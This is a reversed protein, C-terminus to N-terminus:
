STRCWATSPTGDFYGRERAARLEEGDAACRARLVVVRHVGATTHAGRRAGPPAAFDGTARAAPERQARTPASSATPSRAAPSSACRTASRSARTPTRTARARRTPRALAPVSTSDGLAELASACSAVFLVSTDALGRACRPVAERAKLNGLAEAATM